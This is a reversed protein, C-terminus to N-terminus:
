VYLNHTQIYQEVEKSVLNSIPQNKKIKEKILSSSVATRPFAMFIIEKFLREAEKFKELDKLHDNGLFWFFQHSYNRKLELVTDITYSVSKRKIEVDSVKIRNGKMLLKCMALREEPTAEEKKWPNEWTPILWVEDVLKNGLAQNIISLHGHHPPDFSGGLLGIRM